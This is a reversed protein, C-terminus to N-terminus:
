LKYCCDKEIHHVYRNKHRERDTFRYLSQLAATRPKGAHKMDRLLPPVTKNYEVIDDDMFVAGCASTPSLCISPNMSLWLKKLLGPEQPDAIDSEIQELVDRDEPEELDMEKKEEEMRSEVTKTATATDNPSM